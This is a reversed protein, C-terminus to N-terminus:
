ASSPMRSRTRDRPSPSTYLLCSVYVPPSSNILFVPEPNDHHTYLVEGALNLNAAGFLPIHLSMDGGAVHTSQEIDATFVDWGPDYGRRENMYIVGAYNNNLFFTKLRATTIFTMGPEWPGASGLSLGSFVYSTNIPHVTGALSLGTVNPGIAGSDILGFADDFVNVPGGSFLSLENGYGRVTLHASKVSLETNQEHYYAGRFTVGAELADFPTIELNVDQEVAGSSLGMGSESGWRINDIYLTGEFGGTAIIFLEKINAKLDVKSPNVEAGGSIKKWEEADLRATINKNWGPSLTIQTRQEFWVSGSGADSKMAVSVKMQKGPNYVDYVLQSYRTLDLTGPSTYVAGFKVGTDKYTLKLSKSGRSAYDASLEAHSAGWGAMLAGKWFNLATEREFTGETAGDDWERFTVPEVTFKSNNTFTLGAYKGPEGFYNRRALRFDALYVSGKTKRDPYVQLFVRRIDDRKHFIDTYNWNSEASKFAPSIFDFYIDRNWGPGINMLKSEIWTEEDGTQFALAIKVGYDMPNYIDVKMGTNNAFDLIGSYSYMAKDVESMTAFSIEMGKNKEGGFDVAPKAAIAGSDDTSPLWNVGKEFSNWPYFAMNSIDVPMLPKLKAPRSTIARLNDLILYGEGMEPPYTVFCVRRVDNIDDPLVTNAWKSKENKWRREKLNFTVDKNWGKKLRVGPGEQWVWKDGTALALTLNSPYEYPFYVDIKIEYVDSMDVAEEVMFVANKGPSKLDFIGRMAGKGSSVKEAEHITRVASSWTSAASWKLNDSEFDDILVERLGQPEKEPSLAAAGSGSIRINDIFLIGETKNDPEILFGFRRVFKIEKIESDFVGAGGYVPAKLDFEVGKNWGPKLEQRPSEHYIWNTGTKLMLSIKMNTMSSNYIDVRLKDIVSLDGIDFVQIVGQHGPRQANIKVELSSKGETVFDSSLAADHLSNNNWDSTTWDNAKEFNFWPYFGPENASLSGSSIISILVSILLIKYHM